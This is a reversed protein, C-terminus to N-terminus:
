RKDAPTEHENDYLRAAGREAREFNERGADRNSKWAFIIAVFLLAAGGAAAWRTDFAISIVLLAAAALIISWAFKSM